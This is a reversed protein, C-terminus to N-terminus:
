QDAAVPPHELQELFEDLVYVLEEGDVPRHRVVWAIAAEIQRPHFQLLERALDLRLIRAVARPPGAAQDSPAPAGPQVPHDMLPLLPKCHGCSLCLNECSWVHVMHVLLSKAVCALARGCPLAV